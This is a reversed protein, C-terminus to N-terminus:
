MSIELTNLRIGAAQKSVEFTSALEDIILERIIESSLGRWMFDNIRKGAKYKGRLEEAKIRFMEAPM